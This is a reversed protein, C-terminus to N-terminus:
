QSLTKVCKELLGPVWAYMTESEGLHEYEISEMDLQYVRQWSESTLLRVEGYSTFLEELQQITEGRFVKQVPSLNLVLKGLDQELAVLPRKEQTCFDYYALLPMKSPFDKIWLYGVAQALVSAVMGAIAQATTQGTKQAYAELDAMQEPSFTIDTHEQSM